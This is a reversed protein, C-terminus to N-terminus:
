GEAEALIDVSLWGTRVTRRRDKQVAAGVLEIPEAAAAAVVVVVVVVLETWGTLM